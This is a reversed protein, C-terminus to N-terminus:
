AQQHPPSHPPKNPAAVKHGEDCMDENMMRFIPSENAALAALEECPTKIIKTLFEGQLAKLNEATLYNHIDKLADIHTDDKEYVLKFDDSLNCLEKGILLLAAYMAPPYLSGSILEEDRHTYFGEVIGLAKQAYRNFRINKRPAYLFEVAMTAIEGDYTIRPGGDIAPDHIRIYHTIEHAFVAEMNAQLERLAQTNNADIYDALPRVMHLMSVRVGKLDGVEMSSRPLADMVFGEQHFDWNRWAVVNEFAEALIREIRQTYESAMQFRHSDEPSLDQHGPRKTTGHLWMVHFLKGHQTEYVRKDINPDCVIETYIQRLFPVGRNTYPKWYRESAEQEDLLRMLGEM